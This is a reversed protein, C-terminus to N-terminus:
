TVRIPVILIGILIGSNKELWSKNSSINALPVRLGPSRLDSTHAYLRANANEEHPDQQMDQIKDIKSSRAEVVLFYGRTKTPYGNKQCEWLFVLWTLVVTYLGSIIYKHAININVEHLTQKHTNM